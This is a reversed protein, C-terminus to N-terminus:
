QIQMQQLKEFMVSNNELPLQLLNIHSVTKFGTQNVTSTNCVYM